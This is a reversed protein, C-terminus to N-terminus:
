ANKKVRGRKIIEPKWSKRKLRLTRDVSQRVLESITLGTEYSEKRLREHIDTPFIVHLMKTKM